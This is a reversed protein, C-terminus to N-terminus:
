DGVARLVGAGRDAGPRSRNYRVVRDLDARRGQREELDGPQGGSGWAPKEDPVTQSAHQEPCAAPSEYPITAPGRINLAQRPCGPVQGEGICKNDRDCLECGRHKYSLSLSDGAADHHTVLWRSTGPPRM